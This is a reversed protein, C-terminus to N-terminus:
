MICLRQPQATKVGGSCEERGRGAARSGEQGGAAGPRVRGGGEACGHGHGHGGSQAGVRLVAPRAVQQYDHTLRGVGEWTCRLKVAGVAALSTRQSRLVSLRSCILENGPARVLKTQPPSIANLEDLAVVVEAIAPEQALVCLAPVVPEERFTRSVSARGPCSRGLALRQSTAPFSTMATATELAGWDVCSGGWYGGCRVDGYM